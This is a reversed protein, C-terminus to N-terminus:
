IKKANYLGIDGKEDKLLGDYWGVWFGTYHGEENM